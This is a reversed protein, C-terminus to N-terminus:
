WIMLQVRPRSCGSLKSAALCTTELERMIWCGLNELRKTVSLLPRSYQRFVSSLM